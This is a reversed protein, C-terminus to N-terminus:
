NGPLPFSLIFIYSNGDDHLALAGFDEGLAPADADYRETDMSRRARNLDATKRIGRLQDAQSPGFNQREGGTGQGALIDSADDGDIRKRLGTIWSNVKSQTEKFGQELNKKIVPLDNATFDTM